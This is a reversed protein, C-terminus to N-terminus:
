EKSKMKEEIGLVGEAEARFRRLEENRPQNKEMWAVAKEYCQRAEETQDLQWHSMALFFLDFSDGPIRLSAKLEQSKHLADIAAKWDGARYLAVGLTNYARSVILM